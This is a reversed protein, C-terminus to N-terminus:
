ACAAPQSPSGPPRCEGSAIAMIAARPFRWSGGLKQSPIEDDRAWNLVTRTSVNLLTAVDETTMMPDM